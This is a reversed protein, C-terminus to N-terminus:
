RTRVHEPVASGPPLEPCPQPSGFTTHVPLVGAWRGGTAVDEDDDVPPGTRV